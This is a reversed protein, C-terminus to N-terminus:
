QQSQRWGRFREDLLAAVRDFNARDDAVHYATDGMAVVECYDNFFSKEYYEQAFANGVADLDGDTFKEDCERLLFEAGTMAGNRVSDLSAASQETHLEGVLNRLIAWALFMGIHTAGAEPPLDAPFDGDYHWSADDYKM